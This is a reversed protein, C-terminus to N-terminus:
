QDNITLKNSKLFNMSYLKLLEKLFMVQYIDQLKHFANLFIMTSVNSWESFCSRWKKEIKMM